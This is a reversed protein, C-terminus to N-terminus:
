RSDIRDSARESLESRSEIVRKAKSKMQWEVDSDAGEGATDDSDRDIGGAFVCPWDPLSASPAM